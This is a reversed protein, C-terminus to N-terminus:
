LLKIDAFKADSGADPRGVVLPAVLESWKGEAEWDGLDSSGDRLVAKLLLGRNSAGWKATIVNWLNWRATGEEATAGAADGWPITADPDALVAEWFREWLMGIQDDMQEQVEESMRGSYKGEPMETQSLWEEDTAAKLKTWNVARITWIEMKAEKLLEHVAYSTAWRRALGRDFKWPTVKQRDASDYLLNALAGFIAGRM